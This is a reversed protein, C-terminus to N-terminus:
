LWSQDSFSRKATSLLLQLYEYSSFTSLILELKIGLQLHSMQALGELVWLVNHFTPLFSTLAPLYHPPTRHFAIKWRHCSWQIRMSVSIAMIKELGAYSQAWWYEITSPAPLRTSGSRVSYRYTTLPKQPLSLYKLQYTVWAWIFRRNGMSRYAVRIFNMPDELSFFSRSTSLPPNPSFLLSM